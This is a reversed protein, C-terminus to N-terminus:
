SAQRPPGALDRIWTKYLTQVQGNDIQFDIIKSLFCKQPESEIQFDIIKAPFFRFSMRHKSISLEAGRTRAPSQPPDGEILLVRWM